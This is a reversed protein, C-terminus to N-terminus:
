KKDIADHAHSVDGIFSECVELAQIFKGTESGNPFCCREYSFPYLQCSKKCYTILALSFEDEELYRLRGIPVKHKDAMKITAM